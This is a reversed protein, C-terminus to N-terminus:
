LGKDGRQLFSTIFQLTVTCVFSSFAANRLGLQDGAVELTLFIGLAVELIWWRLPIELTSTFVM